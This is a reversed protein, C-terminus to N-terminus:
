RSNGRMFPRGEYNDGSGFDVIAFTDMYEISYSKVSVNELLGIPSELSGDALQLNMRTSQVVPKDWKEWIFKAAINIGAGSDLITTSVISAMKISLTTNGEDKAKEM